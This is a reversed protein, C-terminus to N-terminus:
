SPCYAALPKSSGSVHLSVHAELRAAQAPSFSLGLKSRRWLIDGASRAWEFDCLYNVECAYLGHGFDEGLDALSTADGPIRQALTGYSGIWRKGVSDPLWPYQNNFARELNGFDTFDGGPLVASRTWAPGAEPFISAVTDVAAEALLRYTTVKGGYVSLLPLACDEFELRYDRSIRTSAMGEEDLLPRIGSFTWVVDSRTIQHRFHHNVVGILYDTETDSIAADGPDGSFDEETTGILSYREDFPIVFVVRGDDNQLLFAYDGDHIRNVVLHSGKVLRVPLKASRGTISQVVRGVWPGGANIVAKARVCSSDGTILDELAVQWHPDDAEIGTCQTRTVVTAGRDRAQMANLVVLRADDVQADWYEFGHRISPVLPGKDDFRITRSDPFRATRTIHDYLFLGLRILWRPRLHPQHPIRFAMPRIVHRAAAQLLEREKLAKRVLGFEYQELYRLGGHILKTSASSTASALDGKECLLVKLGRGAADAAIGCGNIGGGIVVLDYAASTQNM